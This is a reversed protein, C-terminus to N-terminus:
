TLPNETQPIPDDDKYHALEATWRCQVDTEEDSADSDTDTLLLTLKPKKAKPEAAEDTSDDRQFWIGVSHSLFRCM